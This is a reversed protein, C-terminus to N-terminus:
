NKKGDDGGFPNTMASPYPNRTFECPQQQQPKYVSPQAFPNVSQGVTSGFPNGRQATAYPSGPQYTWPWPQQMPPQSMPAGYQPGIYPSGCRMEIDAIIANASDPAVAKLAIRYERLKDFTVDASGTIVTTLMYEFVKVNVGDLANRIGRLELMERCEDATASDESYKILKDMIISNIRYMILSYINQPCPWACEEDVTKQAEAVIANLRPLYTKTPLRDIVLAVLISYAKAVITWPLKANNSNTSKKEEEM